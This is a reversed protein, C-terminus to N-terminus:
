NGITWKLAQTPRGGAPSIYAILRALVQWVGYGFDGLGSVLLPNLIFTVFWRAGYDLVSAVANLYAKKTLTKDSLMGSFKKTFFTLRSIM